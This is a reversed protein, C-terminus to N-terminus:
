FRPVNRGWLFGRNCQLSLRVLRGPAGPARRWQQADWSGLQYDVTCESADLVEYPVVTVM